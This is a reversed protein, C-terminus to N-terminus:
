DTWDRLVPVLDFCKSPGVSFLVKKFVTLCTTGGEKMFHM